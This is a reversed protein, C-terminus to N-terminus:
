LVELEARTEICIRPSPSAPGRHNGPFNGERQTWGEKSHMCAPVALFETLPSGNRSKSLTGPM